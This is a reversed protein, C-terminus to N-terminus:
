QGAAYARAAERAAFPPLGGTIHWDGPEATNYHIAVIWNDHHDPMLVTAAATGRTVHPRPNDDTRPFLNELLAAHMAAAILEDPTM